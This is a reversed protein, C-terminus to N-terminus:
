YFINHFYDYKFEARRTWGSPFDKDGKIYRFSGSNPDEKMIYWGGDKNTFGYYTFESNDIESIKYGDTLQDPSTGSETKTSENIAPSDSFILSQIKRSLISFLLFSFGAAGILKLFARKDIDAIEVGGNENKTLQSSKTVVVDKVEIVRPRPPFCIFAFYVLPPYLLTAIALQIYTTSTLFITAIYIGALIFSGYMFIKSIHVKETLEKPM